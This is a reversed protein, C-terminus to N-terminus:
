LINHIFYFEREICLQCKRQQSNHKDQEKQYLASINKHWKNKSQQYTHQEIGEILEQFCLQMEAPCQGRENGDENKDSYYRAEDPEKRYLDDIKRLINWLQLFPYRLYDSRNLMPYGIPIM